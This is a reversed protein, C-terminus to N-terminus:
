ARKALGEPAPFGCPDPSAATEGATRGGTAPPKGTREYIRALASADLRSPPGDFVVRGQNLGVVHDAFTTALEVQHLSVVATLGDERAISRMLDLVAAATAPDLSAVPEDALLMSPAQVLARAIGVRQQEGGSLHDAREFAKDELGVRALAELALLKESRPLPLFAHWRSLHALRGNLANALASSRGVLHHQQFVMATRRRHSKMAQPSAFISKGDEGIVTGASPTALGNLCKLLTSKGAGSPGLLVTFRGPALKVSVDCLAPQEADYSVSVRSVRIM